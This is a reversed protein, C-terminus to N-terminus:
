IIYTPIVNPKTVSGRRSHPVLDKFTASPKTSANIM